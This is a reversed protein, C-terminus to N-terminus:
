FNARTSVPKKFDAVVEGIPDRLASQFIRAYFRRLTQAQRKLQQYEIKPITVYTM